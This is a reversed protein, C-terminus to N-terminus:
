LPCPSPLDPLFFFHVQYIRTTTLARFFIFLCIHTASERELFSAAKTMLNYNLNMTKKKKKFRFSFSSKIFCHVLFHEPVLRACKM